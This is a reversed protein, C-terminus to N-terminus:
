GVAIETLTFDIEHSERAGQSPRPVLAPDNNVIMIRRQARSLIEGAAHLVDPLLQLGDISSLWKGGTSIARRVLAATRGSMRGIALRFHPKCPKFPLLRFEVKRVAGTLGVQRVGRLMGPLGRWSGSRRRDMGLGHRGSGRAAVHVPLLSKV